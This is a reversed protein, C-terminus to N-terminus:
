WWLFFNTTNVPAAGGTSWFENGGVIQGWFTVDFNNVYVGSKTPVNVCLEGWFTDELKEIATSGNQPQPLM